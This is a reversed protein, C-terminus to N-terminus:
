KTKEELNKRIFACYVVMNGSLQGTNKGKPKINLDRVDYRINNEQLEFLFDVLEKQTGEWSYNIGLEYLDGITKEERPKINFITVGHRLAYSKIQRILQPAVSHQTASFIRLKNQLKNLDSLWRDQRQITQRDFDIKNQLTKKEQSMSKLKDLKGQVILWTGGLLITSLTLILLTTERKNLKM